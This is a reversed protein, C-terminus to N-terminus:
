LRLPLVSSGTTTFKEWPGVSTRNAILPRAGASEATVFRRNVMARIATSGDSQLPLDFTEWPGISTRNAILPSAGAADACVYKGNAHARLGYLGGGIPVVDFTEWPGISTRNAILASAGANEATVFRGNVAARLGIVWTGAAPPPSGVPPKPPAIGRLQAALAPLSPDGPPVNIEFHMEDPTGTFDGGWYVVNNFDALIRRIAAVQTATFTGSAGNPHAVANFDVATGSAHCSWWSPNNVNARYDYGWTEWGQLAEVENHFRAALAMLVWAVDGSKVPIQVSTNTVTYDQIGILYGPTGVPWGNYSTPGAPLSLPKTSRSSAPPIRGDQGPGPLAPGSGSAATAGLLLGGVSLAGLQLLKRRTTSSGNLTECVPAVMWKMTQYLRWRIRARRFLSQWASGKIVDRM